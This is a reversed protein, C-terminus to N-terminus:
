RGGAKAALSPFQPYPRSDYTCDKVYGARKLQGGPATVGLSETGGVFPQLRFAMVQGLEGSETNQEYGTMSRLTAAGNKIDCTHDAVEQMIPRVNKFLENLRPRLVELVPAADVPANLGARAQGIFTPRLRKLPGRGADLLTALARAGEPAPPLTGAAAASLARVAGLLKVGRRLGSDAAALASPAQELAGRLAERATAFPALADGAARSWPGVLPTTNALNAFAASSAPFLREAAGDRRLISRLVDDFQPTYAAAQKLTTNLGSGNALMGAGLGRLTEGMGARTKSDFVDVAEPLGYAYSSEDGHIVARDSLLSTSHGPVLEVYRAGLLGNARLLVGTDSPLKTGPDLQLEVRPKGDEGIDSSLVQGVRKGAVRVADHSLLNGIIPTSVYVTEYNRTPVGNYLRLLQFGLLGAIVVVIAGRFVTARPRPHDRRRFSRARTAM